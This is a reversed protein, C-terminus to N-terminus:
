QSLHSKLLYPNSRSSDCKATGKAPIKPAIRTKLFRLAGAEDGDLLVQQLQLLEEEELILALKSM